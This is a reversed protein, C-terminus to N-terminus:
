ASSVIYRIQGQEDFVAASSGDVYIQGGDKKKRLMEYDCAGSDALKRGIDQDAEAQGPLSILSWLNHGVAHESSYGFIREAGSTWRVITNDRSPVIVGGPANTLILQDLDDAM